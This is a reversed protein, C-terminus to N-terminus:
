VVALTFPSTTVVAGRCWDEYGRPSADCGPRKGDRLRFLVGAGSVYITETLSPWQTYYNPVEACNILVWDDPLRKPPFEEDPIRQWTIYRM